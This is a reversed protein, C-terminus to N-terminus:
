RRLGNLSSIRMLATRVAILRVGSVHPFRAPMLRPLPAFSVRWHGEDPNCQVSATKQNVRV